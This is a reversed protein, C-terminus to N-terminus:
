LKRPADDPKANVAADNISHRQAPHNTSRNTPVAQWLVEARVMIRQISEVLPMGIKPYELYGFDLSNRLHGRECGKTSRSIPVTRRSYRSRIRNQVVASRSVFSNSKLMVIIAMSRM